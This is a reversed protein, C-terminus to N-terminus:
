LAHLDLAGGAEVGAGAGAGAQASCIWSTRSMCLAERLSHWRWITQNRSSWMNLHPRWSAPPRATSRGKGNDNTHCDRGEMRRTVIPSGALSLCTSPKLNFKPCYRSQDNSRQCPMSHTATARCLRMSVRTQTISTKLRYSDRLLPVQRLELSYPLCGPQPHQQSLAELCSAAQATHVRVDRSREGAAPPYIGVPAIILHQTLNQGAPLLGVM